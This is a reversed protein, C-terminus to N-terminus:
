RNLDKGYNAPPFTWSVSYAMEVLQEISLAPGPRTAPGKLSLGNTSTLSIARRDSYEVVVANYTIGRDAGSYSRLFTGDPLARCHQSPPQDTCNPDYKVTQLGVEVWAKGQGDDVLLGAAIFNDGWTKGGSTALGPVLGKLTTLTEAPSAPPPPVPTASVDPEPKPTPTSLGAVPPQGAQPGLNAQVVAIGGVTMAVAAATAAVSLVRRRRRRVVGRRMGREVLDPYRPELTETARRMLDPLRDDTTEM